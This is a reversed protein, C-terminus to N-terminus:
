DFIDEVVDWLEEFVKRSLSKRGKKRAKGYSNWGKRNDRVPRKQPKVFCPAQFAQKKPAARAVPMLKMQHLPAGCSACALEHRSQDLVLVTRAGCYCCTAIKRTQPM